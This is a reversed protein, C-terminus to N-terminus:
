SFWGLRLVQDSDLALRALHFMNHNTLSRGVYNGLSARQGVDPLYRYPGLNQCEEM